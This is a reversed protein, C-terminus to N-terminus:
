SAWRPISVVPIDGSTEAWDPWVGSETCDRFIERALRAKTRGYEIAEGDLQCVTVLHPAAKECVVLVFPLEDGVIEAYGDVYFASQIAYGFNVLLRPIDPLASSQASKLDIIAQPALWDIFGRCTVDTEADKWVIAQEPRGHAFINSAVPHSMVADAMNVAVDFEKRPLPIAGEAEIEAAQARGDKTARSFDLPKYTDGVGLVMSHFASGVEFSASRPQPHEREWRYQKPSRLLKKAGSASLGPPLADHTLGSYIGPRLADANTMNEVLSM